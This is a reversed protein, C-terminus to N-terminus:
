QKNTIRAFYIAHHVIVVIYFIMFVWVYRAINENGVVFFCVTLAALAFLMRFANTAAYFTTLMQDNNKAIWKWTVGIIVSTVICFAASFAAPKTLQYNYDTIHDCFNAAFYLLMAIAISYYLYRDSHKKINEIM